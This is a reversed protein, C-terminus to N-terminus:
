YLLIHDDLYTRSEMPEALFICKLKLLSITIAYKRKKLLDSLLIKHRGDQIQPILFTSINNRIM